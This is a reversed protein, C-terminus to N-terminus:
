TAVKRFPKLLFGSAKKKLLKANETSYGHHHAYQHGYVIGQGGAGAPGQAGAAARSNPNSARPKLMNRRYEASYKEFDAESNNRELEVVGVINGSTITTSRAAEYRPSDDESSGNSEQPSGTPLARPTTATSLSTKTTSPTAPSTTPMLSSPTTKGSTKTASRSPQPSAASSANDNNRNAEALKNNYAISRQLAAAMDFKLSFTAESNDFGELLKQWNEMSPDNPDFGEPLTSPDTTENSLAGSPTLTLMSSASSSPEKPLTQKTLKQGLPAERYMYSDGERQPPTPGPAQPLEKDQWSQKARHRRSPSALPSPLGGPLGFTPLKPITVTSPTSPTLPTLPTQPVSPSMKEVVDLATLSLNGAASTSNTLGRIFSSPPRPPLAASPPPGSLSATSSQPHQAHISSVSANPSRISSYPSPPGSAPTSTFVPQHLLVPSPNPYPTSSDASQTHPLAAAAAAAPPPPGRRSGPPAVAAQNHGKSGGTTPVGSGTGAVVVARHQRPQQQPTGPVSGFDSLSDRNDTNSTTITEDSAVLRHKLSTEHSPTGQEEGTVRWSEAGPPSAAPARFGASVAANAAEVAAAATERSVSNLMKVTTMPSDYNHPNTYPNHNSDSLLPSFTSITGVPKPFAPSSTNSSVGSSSTFSLPSVSRVGNPPALLPSNDSHNSRAGLFQSSLLGGNNSFNSAGDTSGTSSDSNSSSGSNFRSLGDHRPAPKHHLDNNLVSESPSPASPPRLAHLGPIAGSVASSSSSSSSPGKSSQNGNLNHTHLQHIHSNYNSAASTDQKIAISSLSSAATSNVSSSITSTSGSKSITSRDDTSNNNNSTNHGARHAKAVNVQRQAADENGDNKDLSYLFDELSKTLQRVALPDQRLPGPVDLDKPSVANPGLSVFAHVDEALQLQTYEKYAFLTREACDRPLSFFNQLAAVLALNLFRFLISLDMAVLGYCYSYLPHNLSEDTFLCALILRIQQVSCQIQNLLHTSTEPLHLKHRQSTDVLSSSDIKERIPDIKLFKFHLIRERLYRNYASILRNNSVAQPIAHALNPLAQQAHFSRYDAIIDFATCDVSSRNATAYNRAVHNLFIYKPANADSILQHFVLHAKLSVIVSPSNLKPM